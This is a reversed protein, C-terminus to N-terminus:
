KAPIPSTGLSVNSAARISPAPMQAHHQADRQRLKARDGGDDDHQGEELRQLAKSRMATIVLPAGNPRM